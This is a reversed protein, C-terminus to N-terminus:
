SIVVIKEININVYFYDQPQYQCYVTSASLLSNDMGIKWVYNTLLAMWNPLFCTISIGEWSRCLASLKDRGMPGKKDYSSTSSSSNDVALM